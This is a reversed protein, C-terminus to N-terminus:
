KCYETQESQYIYDVNVPKILMFKRIRLSFILFLSNICVSESKQCYITM